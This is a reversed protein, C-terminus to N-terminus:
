ELRFWISKARCDTRFLFSFEFLKWYKGDISGLMHEFTSETICISCRIIKLCKNITSFYGEQLSLADSAHLINFEMQDRAIDYSEVRDRDDVIQSFKVLPTMTNQTVMFCQEADYLLAIEEGSNNERLEDVLAETLQIDYGGSENPVRYVFM